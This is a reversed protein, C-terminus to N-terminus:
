PTVPQWGKAPDLQLKIEVPVTTAQTTAAPTPKVLPEFCTTLYDNMAPDNNFFAEAQPWYEGAVPAPLLQISNNRDYLRMGNKHVWSFFINGEHLKKLMFYLPHIVMTVTGFHAITEQIEKRKEEDVVMHDPIIVLLECTFHRTEKSSSKQFATRKTSVSTNCGFCYILVAHLQHAILKKICHVANQEKGNLQFMYNKM